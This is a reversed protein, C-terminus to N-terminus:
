SEEGMCKKRQIGGNIASVSVMAAIPALVKKSLVAALKMLPGALKGLLAGLFEGSQSIKSLQSKSLKIDRSMNYAITVFLERLLDEDQFNKKTIRLTAGTQNKAASRLKNLQSTTIKVRAEEYCWACIFHINSWRLKLGVKCNILPMELSRWFNSLYKLLVATTADRLIGNAGNYETNGLITTKYKFPKFDNANM